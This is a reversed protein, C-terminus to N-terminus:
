VIVCGAKPAPAQEGATPAAASSAGQLFARATEIDKKLPEVALQLQGSRDVSYEDMIIDSFCQTLEVKLRLMMNSIQELQELDKVLVNALQSIREYQHVGSKSELVELALDLSRIPLADIAEKALGNEGGGKRRRMECMKQRLPSMVERIAEPVEAAGVVDDADDAMIAKSIQGALLVSKKPHKLKKAVGAMM